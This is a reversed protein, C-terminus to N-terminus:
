FKFVNALWVSRIQDTAKVTNLWQPEETLVISIENNVPDVAPTIAGAAGCFLLVVAALLHRTYRRAM